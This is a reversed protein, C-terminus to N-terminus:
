SVFGEADRRGHVVEPASTSPSGVQDLLVEAGGRPLKGRWGTLAGWRSLAVSRTRCSMHPWAKWRHSPGPDLLPRRLCHSQALPPVPQESCAEALGFPQEIGERLSWVSTRLSSLLGRLHDTTTDRRPGIGQERPFLCGIDSRHALIHATHGQPVGLHGAELKLINECKVDRHM